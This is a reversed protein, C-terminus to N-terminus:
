LHVPVQSSPCNDGKQAKDGIRNGKGKKDGLTLGPEHLQKAGDDKILQLRIIAM